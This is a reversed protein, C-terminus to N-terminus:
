RRVLDNFLGTVGLSLGVRRVDRTQISEVELTLARRGSGGVGVRVGVAERLGFNNTNYRTDITVSGFSSSLVHVGLGAAIYPSVRATPSVPHVALSLHASLDRFVDRYSKGEALVYESHPLSLLYQVDALLRVRRSRLHGFDVRTAVQWAHFGNEVSAWGASASVAGIADLGVNTRAPPQLTDGQAGARWPAALLVVGALLTAALRKPRLVSALPGRAPM